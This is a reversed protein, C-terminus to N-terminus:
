PSCKWICNNVGLKRSPMANWARLVKRSRAKGLRLDSVTVAHSDICHCSYFCALFCHWRCFLVIVFQIM